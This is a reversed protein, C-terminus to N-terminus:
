ELENMTCVLEGEQQEMPGGNHAHWSLRGQDIHGFYPKWVVKRRMGYGFPEKHFTPAVCGFDINPTRAVFQRLGQDM